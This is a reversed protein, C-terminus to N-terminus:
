PTPSPSPPISLETAGWPLNYPFIGQVFQSLAFAIVVILFGVIAWTIRSRAKTLGEKNGGAFIYQLVGWTLWILMLFGAFIFVVNLLQTLFSGLDKFEPRLGQPNPINEGGPFQLAIKM